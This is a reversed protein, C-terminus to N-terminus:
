TILFISNITKAANMSFTVKKLIDYIPNTDFIMEIFASVKWYLPNMSLIIYKYSQGGYLTVRNASLSTGGSAGSSMDLKTSSIKKM